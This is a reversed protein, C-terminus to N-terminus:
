AVHLIVNGIPNIPSQTAFIISKLVCSVDDVSTPFRLAWEDVKTPTKSLFSKAVLLMASEALDYCDNAYLIPVRIVVGRADPM